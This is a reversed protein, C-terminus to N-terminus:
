AIKRSQTKMLDFVAVGFCSRQMSQPIMHYINLLYKSYYRYFESGKNLLIQIPNLMTCKPIKMDLTQKNELFFSSFLSVM